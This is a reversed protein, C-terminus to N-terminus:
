AAVWFDSTPLLAEITVFVTIEMDGRVSTRKIIIRIEDDIAVATRGFAGVISPAVADSLEAAVGAVRLVGDGAIAAGQGATGCFAKLEAFRLGSAAAKALTFPSPTTAAIATLLVRDCVQALGLALARAVIFEMDADSRDKQERRTLTFSVAHSAAEGLDIGAAALPLPSTTADAGDAVVAFPAATVVEFRAARKYWAVESTNQVADPAANIPILRAGAHIVRSANMVAHRITHTEGATERQLSRSDLSRLQNGSPAPYADALRFSGAVAAPKAIRQVPGDGSTHRDYFGLASRAGHFLAPLGITKLAAIKPSAHRELQARVEADTLHALPLPSSTFSQGQLDVHM